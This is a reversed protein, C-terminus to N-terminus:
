REYEYVDFKDNESIKKKRWGSLIEYPFKVEGEPDLKVESIIARDAFESSVRYIEAGGIIFSKSYGAAACFSIAERIDNKVVVGSHDTFRGSRSIVINLRDKLPKASMSEFTKRGMIVAHGITTSKFFKMEESIHWPIRGGSGIIGNRAIAAILIVEM